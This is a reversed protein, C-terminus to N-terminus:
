PKIVITPVTSLARKVMDATGKGGPFAVVLHPKSQALMEANRKPGASKGHKEWDAPYVEVEIGHMAAYRGALSDAGRAGGHIIRSIGGERIPDLVDCMFAFNAYDRGGCVLVKM